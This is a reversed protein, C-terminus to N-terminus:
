NAVIFYSYCPVLPYPLISLMSVPTSYTEQDSVVDFMFYFYYFYHFIIYYLDEPDLLVLIAIATTYPLCSVVVLSAISAWNSSSVM